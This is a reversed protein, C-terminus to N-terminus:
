PNPSVCMLICHATCHLEDTRCVNLVQLISLSSFSFWSDGNELSLSLVWTLNLGFLASPSSYTQAFWATDKPLVQLDSIYNAQDTICNGYLDDGHLSTQMISGFAISTPGTCTTVLLCCFSVFLVYKLPANMLVFKNSIRVPASSINCVLSTVVRCRLMFWYM